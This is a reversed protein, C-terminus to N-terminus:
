GRIFFNVPYYNKNKKKRKVNNGGDMLPDEKERRKLVNEWTYVIKDKPKTRYIPAYDQRFLERNKRSM